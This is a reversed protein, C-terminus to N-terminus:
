AQRRFFNFGFTAEWFAADEHGFGDIHVPEVAKECGEKGAPVDFQVLLFAVLRRSHLNSAGSKNLGWGHFGRWARNKQFPQNRGQIQWFFGGPQNFRTAKESQM